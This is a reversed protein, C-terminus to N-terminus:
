KPQSPVEITTCWGSTYYYLRDIETATIYLSKDRHMHTTPQQNSNSTTLLHEDEIGVNKFENRM